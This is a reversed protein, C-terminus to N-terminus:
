PSAEATASSDSPPDMMDSPMQTPAETAGAGGNEDTCSPGAPEAPGTLIGKAPGEMLAGTDVTVTNGKIKISFRDLGRPAPGAIYEGKINFVSGHCPCEFMKSSDCLPVRCGLHTCKQYLAYLNGQYSTVYFRGALFYRVTGEPFSNAAGADVIGGFAGSARPQLIDFTTWAAEAALGVALGKWVWSMVKRRGVAGDPTPERVPEEPVGM